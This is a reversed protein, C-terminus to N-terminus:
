MNKIFESIVKEPLFEEARKLCNEKMDGMKEPADLVSNLIMELQSTQMFDYIYGTIGQTIVEDASDWKSAIVPIGAAYADIITGPIGETKFQTPFLLAFYEKLIEVSENFNVSGKYSIFNPFKKQLQEFREKYNEDVQGYIDLTFMVEGRATNISEVTKIADEIGKEKMVRSFTCLKFPRENPFHLGSATLVDLRKFNIFKKVNELGLQQLSKIMSTTEVYVGDLKCVQKKLKPNEGLIEPLWGGIVVYHLKRKYVKNLLLFLPVFIGLGNQAPLIIVNECGKILLLCNIFLKFPNKKWNHTDVIEVNQTGLALKLEETLVKTKVTQGNLLNKKSGFHGCVGIKYM